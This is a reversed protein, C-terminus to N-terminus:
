QKAVPAQQKVEVRAGPVLRLQGDTVVVDGAQLGREIVTLGKVTRGATVPRLEATSEPMKVVFVYDGQQGAEVARSPVVVAHPEMRLTLSVNVFQGPWLRRDENPFTGKLRITMRADVANDVFTLEGEAPRAEEGALFAMVWLPGETRQAQIRHLNEQSVSFSVYIPAIQHITVLVTEDAKVLNGRHVKLSGTLGDLPSRISAYGLELKADEVAAEDSHVAAELAEASTRALDYQDKSSINEVFLREARDAEVRANRAQAQVRALDAEARRLAAEFPRPDIQFLLDGERVEQGETFHVELLQGNVRSGVMVTACPEVNGIARIEEPVGREEAVAVEVPAPPAPSPAQADGRDSCGCPLVAAVLFGIAGAVALRPSAVGGLLPATRRHM